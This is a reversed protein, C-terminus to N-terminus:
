KSPLSDSKDCLFRYYEIRYNTTEGLGELSKKAGENANLREEVCIGYMVKKLSKKHEPEIVRKYQVYKM